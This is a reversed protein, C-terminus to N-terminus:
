KKTAKINALAQDIITIKDKISKGKRALRYNSRAVQVNYKALQLDAIASKLELLEQEHPIKEKKWITKKIADKM